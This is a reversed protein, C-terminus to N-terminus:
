EGDDGSDSVWSAPGILEMEDWNARYYAVSGMVDRSPGLAQIYGQAGFAKPDTVVMFCGGFAKNGCTFPNLQVVDGKKLESGEKM